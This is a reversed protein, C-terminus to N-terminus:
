KTDTQKNKDSSLVMSKTSHLYKDMLLFKLRNKFLENKEKECQENLENIASLPIHTAHITNDEDLGVILLDNETMGYYKFGVDNIISKIWEISDGTSSLTRSAIEESKKFIYNAAEEDTDLLLKEIPIELTKAIKKLTDIKPEREGTEYGNYTTYPIELLNAFETKNLGKEERIKKLNFSIM